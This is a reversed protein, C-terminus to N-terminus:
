PALKDLARRVDRIFADFDGGPALIGGEAIGKVVVMFEVSGAHVGGGSLKHVKMEILPRKGNDRTIRYICSWEHRDEHFGGQPPQEGLSQPANGIEEKWNEEPVGLAEFIRAAERMFCMKGGGNKLDDYVSM